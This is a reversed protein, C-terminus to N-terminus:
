SKSFGGNFENASLAKWDWELDLNAQVVDWTINPNNSLVNMYERTKPIHAFDDWKFRSSVLYQYTYSDRPDRVPHSTDLIINWIGIQKIQDLTLSKNRLIYNADGHDMDFHKINDWGFNSNAILHNTKWPLNPHAAVVAPTVSPHESLFNWDFIFRPAIYSHEDLISMFVSWPVYENRVLPSVCRSDWISLLYEYDANPNAFIIFTNTWEPNSMLVDKPVNRNRLISYNRKPIFLYNSVFDWTANDNALVMDIDWPKDSYM